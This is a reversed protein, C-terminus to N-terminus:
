HNHRAITVMATPILMMGPKLVWGIAYLVSLCFQECGIDTGKTDAIHIDLRAIRAEYNPSGGKAERRDLRYSDNNLRTSVVIIVREPGPTVIANLCRPVSLFTKM